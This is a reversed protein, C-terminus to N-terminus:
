RNRSSFRSGSRFSIVLPNSSGISHHFVLSTSRDDASHDRRKNRCMVPFLVFALSSFCWRKERLWHLRERFNALQRDNNSLSKAATQVALEAYGVARDYEQGKEMVHSMEDYAMALQLNNPTSAKQLVSLAKEYFPQAMSYEGAEYYITGITQALSAISPHNPPLVADRIDNAKYLNALGTEREGLDVQAIGINKLVTAMWPHNPELVEQYIRLTEKYSSLAKAHNKMHDHVLGINNYTTALDIHKWDLLKKQISLAANHCDLANTYQGRKTHLLGINNYTTALDLDTKPRLKEQIEQANQYFEEAKEAKGLQYAIYGLQCNIRALMERDSPATSGLLDSYFTEAQKYNALQIMLRGLRDMNTGDGIERRMQKMLQMTQVEKDSASILHVEWIDGNGRTVSQIRFITHMSFLVEEETPGYRAVADISAFPISTVNPDVVIIFLVTTKGPQNASNRAFKRAQEKDKSTSLFSNFSLLGGINDRMKEFDDNFMGQGRFVKLPEIPDTTKSRLEKIERDVDKMFFAMRAIVEIDVTRLAHNLMKYIFSESTYWWIPTHKHYNDEFNKIDKSQKSNPEFQPGFFECFATIAYKDYDTELLIEKLLHSYMFSADVQTLNQNPSNNLPVISTPTLDHECQSADNVMSHCIGEIQNAVLKIKEWSESLDKHNAPNGCYIYIYAIRSDQHIDKIFTRGLAGSVILFIQENEVKEIEARCEASNKCTTVSNVIGKLQEIDYKFQEQTLDINGDLWIVRINQVIRHDLYKSKDEQKWKARQIPGATTSPKPVFSNGM